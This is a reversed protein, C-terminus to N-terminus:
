ATLRAWLQAFAVAAQLPVVANGLARLRDTRYVLGSPLGDTERRVGPEPCTSPWADPPTDRGPPWPYARPDGRGDLDHWLAAWESDLLGALGLGRRGAQDPDAVELRADVPQAHRRLPPDQERREALQRVQVGDAHALLFVRERGHPAGVSGAELSGWEAAWGAGALDRLVAALGGSTRFGQVNEIFLLPIDAEHIIRWAEPWLWRGDTTGGRKGAVSHPQCPIGGALLDVTGRWPRGDFTALDSWLPAAALTQEEMRAVLTAGAYSEQEVYCVPACAPTGFHRHAMEFALEIGGIGSCVSLTSLAV